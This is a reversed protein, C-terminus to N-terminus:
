RAYWAILKPLEGRGALLRLARKQRSRGLLTNYGFNDDVIRLAEADSGLHDALLPTRDTDLGVDTFNLTAQSVGTDRCVLKLRM